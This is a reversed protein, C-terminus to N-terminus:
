TNAFQQVCKKWILFATSTSAPQFVLVAVMFKVKQM